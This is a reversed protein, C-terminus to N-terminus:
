SDDTEGKVIATLSALFCRQSKGFVGKSAIYMLRQLTSEDILYRKKDPSDNHDSFLTCNVPEYTPTIDIMVNLPVNNM